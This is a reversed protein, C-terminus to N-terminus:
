QNTGFAFRTKRMRDRIWHRLPRSGNRLRDYIRRAQAHRYLFVALRRSMQKPTGIWRVERKRVPELAADLERYFEEDARFYTNKLWCQNAQVCIPELYEFRRRSYEVQGRMLFVERMEERLKNYAPGNWQDAFTGNKANGATKVGPTQLLCCPHLDGNGRLVTSYWAFFCAGNEEKFSPATPDPVPASFRSRLEYVLTNVAAGTFFTDLLQADRDAEVVETLYPRILAVDADGLLLSWDFTQNVIPEVFGVAVRDVGLSRGLRYMEPLRTYNQRDLLFQVAIMPYPADGRIAVLHRVNEIVRDFRDGKVAMMRKYDAPDVANLSIMVYRGHNRVLLEAVSPILGVGNTTLNDVVVKRSGLYELIRVIDPHFLPEGGGSMRVSKLGRPVLEDLIQVLRDYCIQESTRIDQQSCFYCAINCRDTINLEVHSPGVTPQGSVIAAIIERKREADLHRWGHTAPLRRPPVPASTPEASM